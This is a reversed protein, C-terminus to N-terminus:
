ILSFRHTFTSLGVGAQRDYPQVESGVASSPTAGPNSGAIWEFRSPKTALEAFGQEALCGGRANVLTRFPFFVRRLSVFRVIMEIFLHDSQVLSDPAPCAAPVAPRIGGGGRGQGSLSMESSVAMEWGAQGDGIGTENLGSKFKSSTRWPDAPRRGTM